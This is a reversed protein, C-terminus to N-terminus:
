RWKSTVRRGLERCGNTHIECLWWALADQWSIFYFPEHECSKFCAPDFTDDSLYGRTTCGSKVLFAPIEFSNPILSVIESAVDHPLRPPLMPWCLPSINYAAWLLVCPFVFVWLAWTVFINPSFLMSFVHFFLLLVLLLPLLKNVRMTGFTLTTYNCFSIEKIFRRGTIYNNALAEDYSITSFLADMARRGRVGGTPIMFFLDAISGVMSPPVDEDRVSSAPLQYLVPVTANKPEKITEYYVVTDWFASVIKGIPIQLAVCTPVSMTIIEDTYYSDQLLQRSNQAMTTLNRHIVLSGAHWLTDVVTPWLGGHQISLLQRILDPRTSAMDIFFIPNKIVAAVTHTTSLLFTDDLRTTQNHYQLTRNAVLKWFTCKKVNELSGGRQECWRRSSDQLM